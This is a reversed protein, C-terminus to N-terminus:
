MIRRRHPSNRAGGGRRRVAPLLVREAVPSPSSSALCVGRHLAGQTLVGDGSRGCRDAACAGPEVFVVRSGCPYRRRCGDRGDAVVRRTSRVADSVKGAASIKRVVQGSYVPCTSAVRGTPDVHGDARAPRPPLCVGRHPHGSGAGSARPPRVRRPHRLDRSGVAVFFTGRAGCRWGTPHVRRAPGLDISRPWAVRRQPHRHPARRPPARLSRGRNDKIFAYDAFEDPYGDRWPLVDTLTGDPARKWVRHRYAEGVNTVDEGYLNDAADVFLEHTHVGEVAVQKSGDPRIMWVRELDSYYVTGRSDIVVSTPSPGVGPPRALLFSRCSGSRSDSVCPSSHITTTLGRAPAQIAFSSHLNSTGKRREGDM